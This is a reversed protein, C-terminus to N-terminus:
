QEDSEKICKSDHWISNCNSCRHEKYLRGRASYVGIETHNSSL